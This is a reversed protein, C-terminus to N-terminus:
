GMYDLFLRCQKETAVKIFGAAEEASAFKPIPDNSACGCINLPCRIAHILNGYNKMLSNEEFVNCLLPDTGCVMGNCYGGEGISLVASNAICFMGTFKLMGNTLKLNHDNEHLIKREGNDEVDYFLNHQHTGKKSAAMKVNPVSNVVTNFEETTKKQWDLDEQTYRPDLKDGERLLRVNMSFPFHKRYELLTKYISHVMERKDPNFMLSFSIRLTPSLNEILKLIHDMEVHDTHISIGLSINLFKSIDALNKYLNENRSGNSIIHVSNLRDKLNEHLLVITDFLNPHITPEGGTFTVNYWPRNLSAINKVAM